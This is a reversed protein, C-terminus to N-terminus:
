CRERRHRTALRSLTLTETDKTEFRFDCPPPGVRSKLNLCRTGTDGRRMPLLRTRPNGLKWAARQLFPSLRLGVVRDKGLVRLALLRLFPSHLFTRKFRLHIRIIENPFKVTPTLNHSMLSPNRGISGWAAQRVARTTCKVPIWEADATGM